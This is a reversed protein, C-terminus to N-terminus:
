TCNVEVARKFISAEQGLNAVKTCDVRHESQLMDKQCKIRRTNGLTSWVHNLYVRELGHRSMVGQCYMSRTFLVSRPVGGLAGAYTSEYRCAFPPGYHSSAHSRNYCESAIINIIWLRSM